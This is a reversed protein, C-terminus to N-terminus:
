VPFNYVTCANANAQGLLVGPPVNRLQAVFNLTHCLNWPTNRHFRVGPVRPALFPADTELLLRERPLWAVAEQLDSNLMVPAAVGFCVRPFQAIWRQAFAKPYTYCHFHIPLSSLGLEVLLSFLADVAQEGSQSSDRCHLILAKGHTRALPLLLRLAAFQLQRPTSKTFDLGVEGVGVCRSSLLHPVLINSVSQELPLFSRIASPHFGVSYVIQSPLYLCQDIRTQLPQFVFNAVACLLIFNPQACAAELEAFCSYGLERLTLDLHFHSDIFEVPVNSTWVPTLTSIQRGGPMRCLSSSAAAERSAPSVANLLFILIKWHSLCSVSTPPSASFHAPVHDSFEKEYGRLLEEDQPTFTGQETPWLHCERVYALLESVSTLSLASCFIHLLGNLKYAWDRVQEEGFGANAPHESSRNELHYRLSQNCNLQEKCHWCATFAKLWWPLHDKQLHRREHGGTGYSTFTCGEVSCRRQQRGSLSYPAAQVSRGSTGSSVVLSSSRHSLVSAPPVSAARAPVRPPASSRCPVEVCVSPGFATCSPVEVSVSRVSVTPVSDALPPVSVSRVLSFVPPRVPSITPPVPPRGRSVPSSHASPSPRQPHTPSPSPHFSSSSSGAPDPSPKGVTPTPSPTPDCLYDPEFDQESVDM